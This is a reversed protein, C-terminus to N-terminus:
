DNAIAIWPAWRNAEIGLRTDDMGMGTLWKDPATFGFDTVIPPPPYPKQKKILVVADVKEAGYHKMHGELFTLTGGEDVLDDLLVVHKGRLDHYEPSLDHVIHTEGSSRNAGYRSIYITQLNPQYEPNYASIAEMLKVSFPLAGNLICVFLTQKSDYTKVITEAMAQIRQEIEQQTFLIQKYLPSNSHSLSSTSM